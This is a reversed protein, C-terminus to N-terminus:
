TTFNLNPDILISIGLINLFFKFDYGVLDIQVLRLSFSIELTM